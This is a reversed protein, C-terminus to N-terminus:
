SKMPATLRPSSSTICEGFIGCINSLFSCTATGGGVVLVLGYMLISGFLLKLTLLDHILHLLVQFFLDPRTNINIHGSYYFNHNLTIISTLFFRNISCSSVMDEPLCVKLSIFYTQCMQYNIFM